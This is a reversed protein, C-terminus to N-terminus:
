RVEVIEMEQVGGPAKVRVEDGEEKGILARGLPSTVSIRGKEPDSEYPGVLMYSKQEGTESDELTIRAGFVARDHAQGTDIIDCEGIQVQLEAIRGEIFAQRDKAAHYEANEMIDGHARAAKIAKINAPREVKIMKDLEKKLNEYGPRTIPVRQM